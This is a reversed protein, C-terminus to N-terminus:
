ETWLRVLRVTTLCRKGLRSLDLGLNRAIKRIIATKVAKDQKRRWMAVHIIVTEVNGNDQHLRLHAFGRCNSMPLPQTSLSVSAGFDPGTTVGKPRVPEGFGRYM